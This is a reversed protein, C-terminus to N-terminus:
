LVRGLLYWRHQSVIEVIVLNGILSQDGTFNVIRNTRTRGTLVDADTKSVGEVLVEEVNGVYAEGNEDMIKYITDLLRDFRRKKVGEDVQTEMQAAPTGVRKSYIFTYALDFKVEKIVNLTEEFDEETEGPFGVIIDTSLSVRPVKSKIKQVLRLYDEKTYRRNMKDLIATSGSQFPLHIHECVKECEAVVDILEDSFDKPHSTMFRIREIGKVQNVKRLLEPFNVGNEIDLGYSNVNQGLLTIERYGDDALGEIEGIIDKWDRSRERGRVYPVICYTCFNNCGYMISVWAKLGDKRAVPLGEAVLGDIEWIEDVLKEGTISHYMLEPFRHINHTGFIIDVNRYSKKIKEVMHPEQAMCGGFAIILDKNKEKLKKLIGLRGFVKNEANERVCCTNFVVVDAVDESDTQIYGMELLMGSIKEGDSESMQCGFTEVLFKKNFGLNMDKIQNMYSKQIGLEEQSVKITKDKKM